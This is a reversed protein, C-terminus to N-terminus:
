WRSGTQGAGPVALVWAGPGLAASPPCPTAADLPGSAHCRVLDASSPKVLAQQSGCGLAAERGSPSALRAQSKPVMGASETSALGTPERTNGSWVQWM